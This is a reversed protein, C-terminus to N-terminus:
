PSGPPQARTPRPSDPQATATYTDRICEQDLWPKGGFECAAAPANTPIQDRVPACECISPGAAIHLADAPSRLLTKLLVPIAAPRLPECGTSRPRGAPRSTSPRCPNTLRLQM